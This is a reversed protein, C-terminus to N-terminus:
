GPFSTKWTTCRWNCKTSVCASGNRGKDHHREDLAIYKIGESQTEYLLIGPVLSATCDLRQPLLGYSGESTEVVIRKVKKIEALVKFPLLIKLNMLTNEM